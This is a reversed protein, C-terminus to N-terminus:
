DRSIAGPWTGTVGNVAPLDGGGKCIVKRYRTRRSLPAHQVPTAEGQVTAVECDSLM